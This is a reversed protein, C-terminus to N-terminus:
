LEFNNKPIFSRFSSTQQNFSIDLISDNFEPLNNFDQIELGSFTLNNDTINTISNKKWKIYGLDRIKMEWIDTEKTIKLSLDMSIGNGNGIFPSFDSTDTMMNKIHYNLDLSTGTESTYLSGKDINLQM